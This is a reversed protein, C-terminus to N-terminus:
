KTKEKEKGKQPKSTKSASAKKTNKIKINDGEKNLEINIIEDEEFSGKIIEEALPDELYKQIARKLPRAGYAADWGKDAIFRNQARRRRENKM